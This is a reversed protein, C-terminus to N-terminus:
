DDRPSIALGSFIIWILFKKRYRIKLDKLSPVKFGKRYPPTPTPTEDDTNMM